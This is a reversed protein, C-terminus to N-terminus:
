FIGHFGPPVHEGTSAGTTRYPFPRQRPSIPVGGFWGRRHRFLGLAMLAAVILSGAAPEPVATVTLQVYAPNYQVSYAIGASSTTISSFTGSGSGRTIIQFTEGVTPVFGNALEVDLIGGLNAAGTVALQDYSSAGGLLITLEGTSAQTCAGSITDALSPSNFAVMGSNALSSLVSSASVDWTSTSDITMAARNLSGTLTTSSILSVTITSTSDAILNGTLNVGNATFSATSASDVYLIRGSSASITAGGKVTISGNAANGTTGTVYIGDGATATLSGGNITVTAAGSTPATKWLKFGEVTGSLATNTLSISNAGDIV